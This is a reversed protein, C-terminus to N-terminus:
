LHKKEWFDSKETINLTSHVTKYWFHQYQRGGRVERFFSLDPDPVSENGDDNNADADMEQM